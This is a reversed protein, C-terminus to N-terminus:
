FQDFDDTDDDAYQSNNRPGHDMMFLEFEDPEHKLSNGFVTRLEKMTSLFLKQFDIYLGSESSKKRGSQNAGNQYNEILGNSIMKAELRQLTVSLFAAREFLKEYLDMKAHEAGDFLSKLRELEQAIESDETAKSLEIEEKKMNSIKRRGLPVVGKVFLPRPVCFRPRETVQLLARFKFPLPTDTEHRQHGMRNM